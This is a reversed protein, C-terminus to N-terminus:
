VCIESRQRPDVAKGKLTIDIKEAEGLRGQCARRSEVLVHGCASGYRRDIKGRFYNALLLGDPDVVSVYYISGHRLIAFRGSSGNMDSTVTVPGIGNQIM